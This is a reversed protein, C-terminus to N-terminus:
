QPRAVKGTVLGRILDVPGHIEGKGESVDSIYGLPRSLPAVPIGTLLGLATLTDRIARKRNGDESLADVATRGTIFRGASELSAIAPSTSIRDDYWKDNYANIGAQVTPGVIPFMATATRFQAGFFTALLDDMYDDDDNEDLGKGSSARVILESLVAPIMFGFTYVYLLRGAGKKLGLDRITKTFETGLLNAQMNFYSYFMTFARVFPTGTEFRSVDEPNFSGQTQRVAADANRVADVEADGSAVSEDYAASWTIVDVINQFGSQLFYGHKQAFARAKEYENPNLVLDDITQQIEMVQSTVRTSMFDSKSAVMDTTAKPQKVYQFLSDRLHKPNVKLAAISLGTVQQLANVVNAVMVQMGTRKRLERFFTDAARGGWGQTPTEIKQQASRQLWPILMDSAVTPDLGELTRRFGKDMVIRAVDKVHPEIHTFRLVKDIHGPVFRLDMSLPAAYQEVRKKTFGRGTTPFMYSNSTKELGEKELRAASDSVIFPDTVAPVYGGRYNGFPTKVENATIESFYHGYMKKHAIQASPKMTELLDWVGQAFDFDKKTLVGERALRSIFSDWRSTNLIGNDDLHGWNRGRLLKSFNSENGTHLIAGLLEAKSGFTYGLEHAPIEKTTLSGEIEKVLNLYNQLMDRKAARYKTTGDLVPNLIYRRFAGQKESGDVVDVWSEVRRLAARIGLLGMKVKDWTTVAKDYGAREGSAGLLDLRMQLESKVRERDLYKGDIEIERSTKALDWISDVANKMAVFDDLRAKKYPAAGDLASNALAEITIFTDPDYSKIQELYAAPPLESKGLGYQALIARAANVLDIDRSKAIQDDPKFLRRFNDVSNEVLDRASVSSRYLEHNLLERYKADFAGDLDGRALAEGAERAAKIEARQYLSPNIESVTREGVIREAQARIASIPPVRRAVRRIVNKLVGLDESALHELEMRLLESRKENHVAIKAEESLTGDTLMDGHLDKMKADAMAGVLKDKPPASELALLLDEGSRFGFAEAAIDPHVGGDRTYVYPGKIEKLREFRQAGYTDIIGQKSLKLAPVGEPLSSGDPLKGRQLNALAVYTQNSNVEKEIESKISARESKWASKQERRMQGLVKQSLEEEAAMRAEEVARRYSEAKDGSMGFTEPDGFLPAINQEMESTSIEEETALIRDFVGRVESTLEVNLNKLQRYISTLWIKFRHFVSRLEVTPAKGEMLYAEFGRAWQEHHETKIQDRSEVGFWKLITAYDDKVQKSASEAQALDGLVELYFHGTEHLFTSLDADKMLDINFQRGQIRLQGRQAGPEGQSLVSQAEKVPAVIDSPDLSLIADLVPRLHETSSGQSERYKILERVKTAAADRSGQERLWGIALNHAREKETGRYFDLKSSIPEGKYLVESQFPRAQGQKFIQASEQPSVQEGTVQNMVTAMPTAIPPADTKEIRLGYKEFLALPDVGAREGLTKFGTEYLKSYARATKEDFGAAKLQDLVNKTIKRASEESSIDQTTEPGHTAEQALEKLTAPLGKLLENAETLNMSDASARAMRILEDFHENVAVKSLFEPLPVEIPAGTAKSEHYSKGSQESIDQAVRAPSQGKKSWFNDWDNPQFYVKSPEGGTVENVFEAIKNPVTKVTKLENVASGLNKMAVAATQARMAQESMKAVEEAAKATDHPLKARHSIGGIVTEGFSHGLSVIGEQVAEGVDVKSLDGEHAAIQGGLESMSEGTAQIAVDGAERAVKSVLSGPKAGRSLAGAFVNFVTDIMATTLGKREAQARIESMLKPDSYARLVASPDSTDIGRKQMAENVWSGVETTVEGAFTGAAYGTITGPGPAVATGALAGGTGTVIAPLSNALNEVTSYALGKPRTVAAKIMDIVEGTVQIDGTAFQKLAELVNGKKYTDFSGMFSNVAKQLDGGEKAMADNFDRAYDPMKAQLDSAKKNYEAVANAAQEPSALGYAAALHWMSGGLNNWGTQGARGMEDLFNSPQAVSKSGHEIKKLADLDNIGLTSNDPNELWKALGPTDNILGDYDVRAVKEKKNIDDFNREVINPPLKTRESLELVKAKQEPVGNSAVFMSQQLSSRQNAKDDFLMASYDNGNAVPGKGSTDKLLEDYENVPM